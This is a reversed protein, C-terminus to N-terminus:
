LMAGHKGRRAYIAYGMLLVLVIATLEFALASSFPPNRATSFQEQIVNGILVLKGEGLVDTVVYQGISPIFVLVIGAIIGPMTLPVTVRWFTGWGRAGLDNSAELLTCDLKELSAYLPLIMFPLEGYVLGLMIAFTSPLLQLPEHILHLRLLATNLLGEGRLILVWAYTRILFSTWFPVAVLALLLNKRSKKAILAIYYAVPYSVILCLVTTVIAMWLSRWFIRLYVKEDWKAEPEISDKYNQTLTFDGSRLDAKMEALPAIGGHLGREAFSIIFMIVLPALFFLGMVLWTPLLTAPPLKCTRHIM